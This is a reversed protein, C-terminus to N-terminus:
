LVQACSLERSGPVILAIAAFRENAKPLSPDVRVAVLSRARWNTAVLTLVRPVVLDVFSRRLRRQKQPPRKEQMNQPTELSTIAQYSRAAKLYPM